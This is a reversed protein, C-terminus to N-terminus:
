LLGLERARAVAETRREVHLKSFIIQNHGKVTSLTVFLRQSIEQNSLGQAILQLVEHERPSLLPADEHPAPSPSAHRAEAATGIPGFASMLQQAYLRLRENHALHPLLAALLSAMVPGEDVFTRIFGGPAAAALAENLVHLAQDLHGRAHHAITQLVMAKLREDAWGRIEAEQRFAALQGLAANTDGQALAVRARSLPLNHSHALTAAAPVHGQRLLVLVQTAAIDPLRLAFQQQRAIQETAALMAVAGTVDGRALKLRALFIECNVARDTNEIQRALPLSFQGHREAADLDNWEYFIRALGLHADCMPPPPLDGMLKIAQQYYEVAQTLNDGEYLYGLGILAMMVITNLGIAQSNALAELYAQKAAARDGQLHHAYGLNWIVSARSPHNHTPLHQLALRSQTIIEAINHQTLAATARISAIRGIFHSDHTRGMNRLAAEAARVKEEVGVVQGIVLLASAYVVWLSPETDLVTPPLGALWNLIPRVAGRFQLPMGRGEILHAARPINNAAIAHHLAEIELAHNEYWQSARNHLEALDVSKDAPANAISQQLRQRLLEAFLHHYRYWRRENDLPVIFLNAREIHTLTDQGFPAAAQLVADCLPGCLRNLISTHLLFAQVPEPQQQLVEEVLYDLVFQHNGSFSQIFQHADKHGQLSIAALQLGAIWGETRTGLAAVDNPALGLGMVQNLFGSAEALNFSLDTIRLETLQGRARLKALPLRPDERTAILLRLNPPIHEIFFALAQDVPKADVAHYDDLVIAFSYPLASIENLLATLIAEAPPPRLSQVAEMISAGFTSAPSQQRTLNQVSAVLYAMFRIPDSDGEDLSVWAVPHPFIAVWESMLTTKGFGAPASILTLKRQAGENLRAILSGRVVVKAKPPPVYIKTALIPIPM